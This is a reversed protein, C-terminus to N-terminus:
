VKERALIMAVEMDEMTVITAEETDAAALMCTMVVKERVVRVKEPAKVKEVRRHLKAARMVMAKVKEAKRSEVKVKESDVKVKEEEPAKAKESDKVDKEVGGM